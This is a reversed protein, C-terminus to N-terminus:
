AVAKWDTVCTLTTQWSEALRMAKAWAQQWCAADVLVTAKPTIVKFFTM